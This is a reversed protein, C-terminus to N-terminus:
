VIFIKDRVVKEAGYKEVFWETNVTHVPIIYQPNIKKLFRELDNCDAHGSTHVDVIKMGLSQAFDLFAKITKQNKYGDWMSYILVSGSLPKISNLKQLYNKFSSRVCMVFKKDAIQKEGMKKNGYGAFYKSYEEEDMGKSTFAYVNNFTCPNPINNGCLNTVLSMYVDQLMIRKVKNAAKYVTVVRDINLASMLVFVQNANEMVDAMKNELEAEKANVGDKGANTGECIVVDVNQPMKNLYSSFNKRGNGRFDGTYVVTKNEAEVIFSYADCASHDAFVPTVRIDGVIIPKSDYFYGAPVFNVINNKYEETAKFIDYALKGMYVPPLNKALSLLGVHDAHYHSIFIASFDNERLLKDFDFGNEVVDETKTVETEEIPNLELGADLLIKTKDTSIEIVNGGIQDMGRHVTIKM